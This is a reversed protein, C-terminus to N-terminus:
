TRDNLSKDDDRADRWLKGVNTGPAAAEHPEAQEPFLPVAHENEGTIRALMKAICDYPRAGRELWGTIVPRMAEAAPRKSAILKDPSRVASQEAVHAVFRRLAAEIINNITKTTEDNASEGNSINEGTVPAHLRLTPVSHPTHRDTSMLDPDYRCSTPGDDVQPRDDVEHRDTSMLDAEVQHRDTSVLDFLVLGPTRRTGTMHAGGRHGEVRLWIGAEHLARLIRAVNGFSCRAELQAVTTDVYGKRDRFDEALLCAVHHAHAARPRREAPVVSLLDVILPGLRDAAPRLRHSV